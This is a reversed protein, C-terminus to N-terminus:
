DITLLFMELALTWWFSVDGSLALFSGAPHTCQTWELDTAEKECLISTYATQAVRCFSSEWSSVAVQRTQTSPIYRRSARRGRCSFECLPRALTAWWRWFGGVVLAWRGVGGSTVLPHRHEGFIPRPFIIQLRNSLSILSNAELFNYSYM